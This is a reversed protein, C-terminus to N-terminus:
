KSEPRSSGIDSAICTSQTCPQHSRQPINVPWHMGDTTNSCKLNKHTRRSTPEPDQILRSAQMLRSLM